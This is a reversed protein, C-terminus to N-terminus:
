GAAVAKRTAETWVAYKRIMGELWAGHKPDRFTTKDDDFLVPGPGNWFMEPYVFVGCGELPIRTQWLGRIGGVVGSSTSMLLATRGKLHQHPRVRSEWDILNKLTGPISYNYEPTALLIGDMGEMLDHFAKPGPPLGSAELLDHDFMPGEFERYDHLEVTAGAAVAYPVARAILKKHWSERRLSAAFALLRVTM